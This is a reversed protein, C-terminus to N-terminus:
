DKRFVVSAMWGTMLAMFATVLGYTFGNQRATTAVFQEFGVKVIEFTTETQTVLAGRAFLKIDIHYSGIPVAAPLPIGTRFLTPTLFTVASTQERYLGHEARLRVFASRFPDNPVVDAYDPGVRQTLLVNNLGLQQRRRVEPPAIADIPRNAFIALYSPVQLFQRYDTNVWIGFKREKRRTVMDAPPGSVTVVLDYGTRDAPTKDDKEVSGFLVLEEGSYNPTVTVRQNSVSVILREARASQIALPASLALVVAIAAWRAFATM